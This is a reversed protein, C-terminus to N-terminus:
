MLMFGFNYISGQQLILPKHSLYWFMVHETHTDIVSLRALDWNKVQCIKNLM